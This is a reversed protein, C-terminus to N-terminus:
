ARRRAYYGEWAGEGEKGEGGERLERGEQGRQYPEEGQVEKQDKPLSRSSSGEHSQSQSQSMELGWGVGRHEDCDKDTRKYTLWNNCGERDPGCLHATPTYESCGCRFTLCVKWCFYQRTM